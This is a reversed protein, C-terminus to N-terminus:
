AVKKPKIEQWLADDAAECADLAEQLKWAPAHGGLFLRAQAVVELTANESKERLEQAKTKM